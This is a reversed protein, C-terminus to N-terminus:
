QKPMLGRAKAKALQEPTNPVTGAVRGSSDVVTVRAAAATPQTPKAQAVLMKEMVSRTDHMKGQGDVYWGPVPKGDRDQAQTFTMNNKNAVWTARGNPGVQSWGVVKGTDDHQPIMQTEAAAAAPDFGSSMSTRGSRYFRAGTVPDQEFHATLDEQSNGSLAPDTVVHVGGRGSRSRILSLGPYPGPETVTGGGDAAEGYKSLSDILRPVARGSLGPTQLAAAMADQFTAPPQSDDSEGEGTLDTNYGRVGRQSMVQGFRNVAAGIGVDDAARQQRELAQARYDAMKATVMQMNSQLTHADLLGKLQDLGMGDLAVSSYGNLKMLNRTAKAVKGNQTLQDATNPMTPNGAVDLEGAPDSGPSQVNSEPSQDEGDDEPQNSNAAYDAMRKATELVQVRQRHRGILDMILGM